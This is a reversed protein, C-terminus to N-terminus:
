DVTQLYHKAPNFPQMRAQTAHVAEKVDPVVLIGRTSVYTVWLGLCFCSSSAMRSATVSSQKQEM